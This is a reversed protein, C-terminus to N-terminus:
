EHNAVGSKNKLYKLILNRMDKPIHQDLMGLLTEQDYKALNEIVKDLSVQETIIDQIDGIDSITKCVSIVDVGSQQFFKLLTILASLYDCFDNQTTITKAQIVNDVKSHHYCLTFDADFKYEGCKTILVNKKNPKFNRLLRGFVDFKSKHKNM